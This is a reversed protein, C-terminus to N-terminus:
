SFVCEVSFVEVSQFHRLQNTDNRYRCVTVVREVSSAARGQHSLREFRQLLPCVSGSEFSIECQRRVRCSQLTLFSAALHRLSLELFLSGSRVSSTRM